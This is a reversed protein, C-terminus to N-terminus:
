SVVCVYLESCFWSHLFYLVDCMLWSEGFYCLQMNNDLSAFTSGEILVGNIAVHINLWYAMSTPLPIPPSLGGWNNTLPAFLGVGYDHVTCLRLHVPSPLYM